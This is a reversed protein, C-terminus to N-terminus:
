EYNYSHTLQGSPAAAAATRLVSRIAFGAPCRRRATKPTNCVGLVAQRLAGFFYKIKKRLGQLRKQNQGSKNYSVVLSTTESLRSLLIYRWNFFM